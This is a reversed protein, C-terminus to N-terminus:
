LSQDEYKNALVVLQCWEWKKDIKILAKRKELQGLRHPPFTEAAVLRLKECCRRLSDPVLLEVINNARKEM